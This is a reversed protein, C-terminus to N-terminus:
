VLASENRTSEWYRTARAVTEAFRDPNSAKICYSNAGCGSARIMEREDNIGTLIVVPIDRTKEDNKLAKLVDMGDLTPMDLDLYILGPRPVNQYPPEQRAFALAEEGSAVEYIKSAASSDEIHERIILRCDEDDDVLLIPLHDQNSM